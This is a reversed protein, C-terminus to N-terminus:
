SAKMSVAKAPWAIPRGIRPRGSVIRENSPAMIRAKMARSYAGSRM